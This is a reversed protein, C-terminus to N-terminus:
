RAEVEATKGMACLTFFEDAPMKPVSISKEGTSKVTKQVPRRGANKAACSPAARLATVLVAMFVTKISLRM